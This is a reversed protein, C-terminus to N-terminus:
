DAAWWIPTISWTTTPSCFGKRSATTGSTYQINVVDHVGASEDPPRVGAAVMARWQDTGLLVAHELPLARGKRAAALVEGYHARADQEYLFIAKMGSRELIYALDNARYAPNVNVLVAGIKATAGAPLDMRHLELGVHRSPRRASRRPGLSGSSNGRRRRGLRRLDAAIGPPPSVVAEKHAHKAVTEDFAQGITKELLTISQGAAYSQM